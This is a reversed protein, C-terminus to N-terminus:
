PVSSGRRYIGISWFDVHGARDPSPGIFTTLTRPNRTTSVAQARNLVGRTATAARARNWASCWETVIAQPAKMDQMTVAPHQSDTTAWVQLGLVQSISTPPGSLELSEAKYHTRSCGPRCFVRDGFALCFLKLSPKPNLTNAERASLVPPWDGKLINKELTTSFLSDYPNYCSIHFMRSNPELIYNQIGGQEVGKQTDKSWCVSPEM